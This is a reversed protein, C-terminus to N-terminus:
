RVVQTPLAVPAAGRPDVRTPTAQPTPLREQTHDMAIRVGPQPDAEPTSRAAAIEYRKLDLWGRWGKLAAFSIMGTIALAAAAWVLATMSRSEIRISARQDSQRPRGQRRPRQDHRRLDSSCVDSSWDSIRM